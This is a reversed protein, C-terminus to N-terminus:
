KPCACSTSATKLGLSFRCCQCMLSLTWSLRRPSFATKALDSSAMMQYRTTYSQFLDITGAIFNDKQKVTM